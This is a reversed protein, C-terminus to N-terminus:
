NAQIEGKKVQSHIQEILAYKQKKQIGLLKNHDRLGMLQKKMEFIRLQFLLKEFKLALYKKKLLDKDEDSM